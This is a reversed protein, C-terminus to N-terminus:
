SAYRRLQKYAKQVQKYKEQVQGTQLLHKAQEIGLELSEARGAIHMGAGANLCVNEYDLSQKDEGSVIAHFIVRNEEPTHSHTPVKLLPNKKSSFDLDLMKQSQKVVTYVCNPEDSVLEDLGSSARPLWAVETHSDQTLYDALMKQMIPSSVGLLRYAPHLPNLLPGMSNFITPVGLARRLMM